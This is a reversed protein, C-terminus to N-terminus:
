KLTVGELDDLRAMVGWGYFGGGLGIMLVNDGQQLPVTLRSNEISIRGRQKAIPSGFYNKDVYLWRGNLFIWVEELFGLQLQCTREKDSHLVTKLFVIRRVFDKEPYIRTVNVLGLREVGIPKWVRQSDPMLKYSFDVDKPILEPETVQWRRIYHPDYAAPDVGETAPLGETEGQRVILNSLTGKGQFCIAGHSVNGELRSVELAPQAAHNLYVRMRRGSVVLKTHIPANPARNRQLRIITM